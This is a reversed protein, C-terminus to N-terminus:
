RRSIGGAAAAPRPSSRRAAAAACRASTDIGIVQLLVAVAHRQVGFEARLVRGGLRHGRLACSAGPSSAPYTSSATTLLTRLCGARRGSCPHLCRTAGSRTARGTSPWISGLRRPSAYEHLTDQLPTIGPSSASTRWAGTGRAPPCDVRHLHVKRRARRTARIASPMFSMAPPAASEATQGQFGHRPQHATVARGPFDLLGHAHQVKGDPVEPVHHEIVMPSVQGCGPPRAPREPGPVSPSRM